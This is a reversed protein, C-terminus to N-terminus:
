GWSRTLTTSPINEFVTRPALRQDDLECSVYFMDDRSDAELGCSHSLDWRAPGGQTRLSM